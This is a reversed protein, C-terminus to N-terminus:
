RGQEAQIIARGIIEVVQPVVANGLCRLRDVRNRVGDSVRGMGSQSFWEREDWGCPGRAGATRQDTCERLSERLRGELRPEDADAVHASCRCANRRRSAQEGSQQAEGGCECRKELRQGNTDAMARSLRAAASWELADGAGEYQEGRANAIIWLRDRRHPAGVASAPICHWEADFGLAALDGLVRGLGRGLLAAVNEVIVYRPRLEGIVRAYESWLGSREGDIGARKGANSIDQCPFGGCLVDPREVTASTIGRIDGHNPVDPWHKKLVASAYPDIESQWIVKMGARELGLDFGGIGAFLSGVTLIVGGGGEPVIGSRGQLPRGCM